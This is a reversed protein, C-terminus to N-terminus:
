VINLKLLFNNSIRIINNNSIKKNVSMKDIFYINNNIVRILWREYCINDDDIIGCALYKGNSSITKWTDSEHIISIMINSNGCNIKNKYKRTIYEKFFKIAIIVTISEYDHFNQIIISAVDELTYCNKEYLEIPINLKYGYYLKKFCTFLM